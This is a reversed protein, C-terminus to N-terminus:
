DLGEALQMWKQLSSATDCWWAVCTHHDGSEHRQQAVACDKGCLAHDGEHSKKVEYCKSATCHKSHTGNEHAKRITELSAWEAYDPHKEWNWDERPLKKFPAHPHIYPKKYNKFPPNWNNNSDDKHKSPTDFSKNLLNTQTLKNWPM